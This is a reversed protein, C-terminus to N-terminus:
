TTCLTLITFSASIFAAAVAETLTIAYAHVFYDVVFGAPITMLCAVATLLPSTFLVAVALSINFGTALVANLFLRWCAEPSHLPSKFTEAALVLPWLFLLNCLGSTSVFLLAIHSDLSTSATSSSLSSPNTEGNEDRTRTEAAVLMPVELDSKVAATKVEETKEEDESKAVYEGVLVEYGAYAFAACLVCLNGFLSKSLMTNNNNTSGTTGADTSGNSGSNGMDGQDGM